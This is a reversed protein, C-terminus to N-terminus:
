DGTVRDDCDVLSGISLVCPGDDDPPDSPAPNQNPPPTGGGNPPPPSRRPPTAPVAPPPPGLHLEGDLRDYQVPVRQPHDHRLTDAAWAFSQEVSGPARGQRMARDVMYEVLYSNGLDSSEYALGNATAAGTLIRGPALLEDFGGAYCSAMAIWTQGAALPRLLDALELDTVLNGDAAVIAERGGGLKRVHGAYFFVATADPGARGVLWRAADAIVGATAQTNRVVLRRDATIGYGALAADVDNADAVSANLDSGSGPYDDIGIIVAWVGSGGATSTAASRLADPPPAPASAPADFTEPPPLIPTDGVVATLPRPTVAVKAGTPARHAARATITAALQQDDGGSVAPAVGIKALALHLSVSSPATVLLLAAGLLGARARRRRQREGV